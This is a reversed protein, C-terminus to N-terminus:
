DALLAESYSVFRQGTRPRCHQVRRRYTLAKWVSFKQLKMKNTEKITLKDDM